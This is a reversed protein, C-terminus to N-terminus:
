ALNMDIAPVRPIDHRPIHSPVTYVTFQQVSYCNTHPSQFFSDSGGGFKREWGPLAPCDLGPQALGVIGQSPFPKM